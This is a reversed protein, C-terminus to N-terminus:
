SEDEPLSNSEYECVLFPHVFVSKGASMWLSAIVNKQSISELWQVAEEPKVCRIPVLVLRHTDTAIHFGRCCLKSKPHM